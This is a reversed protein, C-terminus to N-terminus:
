LEATEDTLLERRSVAKLGGGGRHPTEALRTLTELVSGPHHLQVSMLVLSTMELLLFLLDM